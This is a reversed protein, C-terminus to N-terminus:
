ASMWPNLIFRVVQAIWMVHGRCGDWEGECESRRFLRDFGLEM